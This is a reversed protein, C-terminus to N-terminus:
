RACGPAPGPRAAPSAGAVADAARGQQPLVSGLNNWAVPGDPRLDIAHRFLAEAGRLDGQRAAIIALNGRAADNRPDLRLVEGYLRKAEGIAGRQQAAIAQRLISEASASM